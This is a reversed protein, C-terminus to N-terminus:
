QLLNIGYSHAIVQGHLSSSIVIKGTCIFDILDNINNGWNIRAPINNSKLLKLLYRDVKHLVVVINNNQKIKKRPFALSTLIGTDTIWPPNSKIANSTLPRKCM